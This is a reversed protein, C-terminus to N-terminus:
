ISAAVELHPVSNLLEKTPLRLEFSAGEGPQSQASILGGHDKMIGYVISLGLGTGLGVEKTTYFPDFIHSLIGTAMGHGTDRVTVVEWAGDTKATISVRKVVAGKL